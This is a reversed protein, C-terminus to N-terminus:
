TVEVANNFNRFSNKMVFVFKARLDNKENKKKMVFSENKQQSLKKNFKDFLKYEKNLIFFAKDKSKLMLSKHRKYYMIKIKVNVFTILNIIKQRIRFRTKNLTKKLKKENTSKKKIKEFIITAFVNKTKFDYCIENSIM